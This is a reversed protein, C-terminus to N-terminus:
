QVRFRPRKRISIYLSFCFTVVLTVVPIAWASVPLGRIAAECLRFFAVSGLVGCVACLVSPVYCVAYWVRHGSAKNLFLALVASLLYPVCWAWLVIIVFAGLSSTGSVAYILPM